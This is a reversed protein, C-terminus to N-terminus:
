QSISIRQTTVFDGISLRVFYNGNLLNITGPMTTNPMLLISEGGRILGNTSAVTHGLENLIRIDANCAELLNLKIQIKHNTESIEMSEFIKSGHTVGPEYTKIHVSGASDYVHYVLITNNYGLADYSHGYSSGTTVFRVSDAMPVTGVQVTDVHIPNYDRITAKSTIPCLVILLLIGCWSRLKLKGMKLSSIMIKGKSNGKNLTIFRISFLLTFNRHKQHLSM